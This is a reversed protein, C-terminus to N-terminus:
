PAKARSAPALCWTTFPEDAPAAQNTVPGRRQQSPHHSPEPRM